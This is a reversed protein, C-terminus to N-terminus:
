RDPPESSVEEAAARIRPDADARAAALHPAAADLAGAAVYLRALALHAEGARPSSPYAALFAAFLTRARADRGARAWAVAAWYSADEGVGIEDRAREFEVAARLFRGVRLAYWGATFHPAAAAAPPAPSPAPSPAPVPSPSPSPSPSPAPSPAPAPHDPTCTWTEGASIVVIRPGAAIEVSGAFVAVAHLAGGAGRAEFRAGTARVSANSAVVRVPRTPAAGGDIALGGDRLYLRDEDAAAEVDYAAHALAIVTPRSAAAPPTAIPAPVSEVPVSIPLPAVLPPPSAQRLLALTVVAAVAVAAYLPWRRRRVTAAPLDAADAAALISDSLRQRRRPALSPAPLSRALARLGRSEAIVAGCRACDLAHELTPEDEGSAARALRAPAPCTM